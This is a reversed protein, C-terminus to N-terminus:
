DIIKAYTSEYKVFQEDHQTQRPLTQLAKHEKLLLLEKARGTSAPAIRLAVLIQFLTDCDLTYVKLHPLIRDLIKEMLRALALIQM